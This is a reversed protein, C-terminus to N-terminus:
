PILVQVKMLVRIIIVPFPAIELHRFIGETLQRSFLSVHFPLSKTPDCKKLPTDGGNWFPKKM